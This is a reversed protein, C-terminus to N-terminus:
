KTKLLKCINAEAMGVYVINGTDQIYGAGELMELVGANESYNKIIVEDNLLPIQPVNITAMCFPMGDEQDILKIAKRGNDAYEEFVVSLKCGHMEM